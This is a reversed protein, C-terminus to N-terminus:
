GEKRKYYLYASVTGVLIGVFEVIIVQPSGAVLVDLLQLILGGILMTVVAPIAFPLLSGKKLFFWMMVLGGAVVGVIELVRM